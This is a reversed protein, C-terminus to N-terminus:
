YSLYLERFDALAAVDLSCLNLHPFPPFHKPFAVLFFDEEQMTFSIGAPHEPRM